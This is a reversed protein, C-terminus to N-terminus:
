VIDKKLYKIYAAAVAIVSFITGTLLLNRDLSKSSVIDAGEAYGFPTIYKLFKARESINAILNLFYMLAAIGLGTGSGGSRLFASICFCIAAIELQVLLDKVLTSIATLSSFFAGGLGLIDGSYLFPM